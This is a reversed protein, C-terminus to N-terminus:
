RAKFSGALDVDTYGHVLTPTIMYYGPTHMTTMKVMARPTVFWVMSDICTNVVLCALRAICFGTMM